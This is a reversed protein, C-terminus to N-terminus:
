VGQYHGHRRLLVEPWSLHQHRRQRLTDLGPNVFTGDGLSHSPYYSRSGTGGSGGVFKTLSTSMRKVQSPDGPGTQINSGSENYGLTFPLGGSWNTTDSIQYGGVILDTARNASALFQKGKGFPLDYSGYATLQQDRVEGDRGHVVAHSWTSYGGQEDFASAWEYNATWALGHNMTNALTVQLADFETNLVDGRFAISNTWGCMGPTIFPENPTVYNPDHCAPLTAAYYRQLLNGNAGGNASITNAHVSPDYHLSQGTVSNAGPLFIARKTRIPATTTAM